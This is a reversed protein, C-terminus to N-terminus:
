ITSLVRSDIEKGEGPLGCRTFRIHLLVMVALLRGEKGLSCPFDVSAAVFSQSCTLLVSNYDHNNLSCM